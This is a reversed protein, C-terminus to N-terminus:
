LLSTFRACVTLNLSGSPNARAFSRFAPELVINLLLGVSLSVCSLFSLTFLAFYIYM